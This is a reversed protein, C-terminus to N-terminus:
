GACVATVTLQWPSTGTADIARVLWSDDDVAYSRYVAPDGGNLVYGAGTVKKGPPCDAAVEKSGVTNNASAAVVRTIGATIAAPDLDDSKVQGNAIKGSTVASTALDPTKVGGDAMDGGTLSQDQVDVSQVGGTSVEATAVSGSRLDAAALGGGALTDNRVDASYVEDNVIDSSRVTNAAYAVGGALVLFLAIVGAWERLATLLRAALNADTSRSSKKDM